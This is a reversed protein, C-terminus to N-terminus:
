VVTIQPSYLGMVDLARAHNEPTSGACAEAVVRVTAGADAAALATSIVCCDTAVGALLLEPAPGTVSELARWKGFTTADVTDDALDALEPVLDFLADTPPRDAFPWAEFYANWSGTRAAGVAPVWRTVITRHRAALTRIPDVIAGFMPSGWPSDPAAFVRQPDIVVLWPETM